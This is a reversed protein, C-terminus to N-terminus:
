ALAAVVALVAVITLLMHALYADLRGNQLSKAANVARVLLQALPAFLYREFVEVVDTTYGLNAYATAPEATHAPRDPSDGDGSETGGTRSDAPKLVTLTTRTLLVTALVKRTPNAFGFPTYQSEGAVGDTASRWVPVLRVTFMRGRGLVTAVALVTLLLAPMIVSLWSPSLASFASYVPQLVWPSRLSATALNSAVIPSLGAALVRVWLPGIAAVGM